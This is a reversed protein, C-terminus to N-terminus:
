HSITCIIYWMIHSKGSSISSIIPDLPALMFYGTINEFETRTQQETMRVFFKGNICVHLTIRPSYNHLSVFPQLRGQNILNHSRFWIDSHVLGTM